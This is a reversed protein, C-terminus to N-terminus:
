KIIGSPKDYLFEEAKSWQRGTIYKLKTKKVFVCTPNGGSTLRQYYNKSFDPILRFSQTEKPCSGYYFDPANTKFMKIRADSFISFRPMFSTYWNYRYASIRNAQWNILEDFGDVFITDSPGSLAKIVSGAQLYSGYNTIFEEQPDIKERTFSQPSSIFFIFSGSLILLCLIGIRTKKKLELDLFYFIVTLFIGYWVIMHFAEYFVDGPPVNRINALGLIIFVIFINKFNKKITQSVFLIISVVDILLLFNRFLNWKGDFFLYIQYFFTKILSLLSFQGGRIEDSVIGNKNVVFIDFFYDKLPSAILTILSIITFLGLSIKKYKNFEGGYLILFYILFILPFFTEGRMFFIFWSFIGSLIYDYGRLTKDKLKYLLLIFMYVFPYVILGEALFRDGSVYFKSFEYFLVFGFTWTGFRLIILLNMIFSFLLLFQRHRLILEFINIPHSLSQILFSLDAMLRQHNFPIDSFLVKGKTMFYGAVINFCDDSCGFANIRPIYIKYLLFYIGLLSVFILLIRLNFMKHFFM